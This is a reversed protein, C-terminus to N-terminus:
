LIPQLFFGAQHRRVLSDGDSWKKNKFFIRLREGNTLVSFDETKDSDWDGWAYGFLQTDGLPHSLTVAAGAKFKGNTFVVFKPESIRLEQGMFFDQVLLPRTGDMRPFVRAFGDFYGTQKLTGSSWEIVAVRARDVGEIYWTAFIDARGSHAPDAVDVTMWHTNHRDTYTAIKELHDTQWRYVEIRDQFAVVVDNAGSGEVDGVAIGRPTGAIPSSQWIM